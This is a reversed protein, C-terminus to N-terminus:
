KFRISNLFERFATKQASVVSAPGIMKIFWVKGDHKLMAVLMADHRDANEPGFLEAYHGEIGGITVSEVLKDIAKADMEVLGVQGAWRRINAQVDAVQGGGSAPLDIVTVEGEAEGAVVRFAAKRMMSMRGPLWGDPTEYELAANEAVSSPQEVPQDRRASGAHPNAGPQKQMIGVLEFLTATAGNTPIEKGLKKVTEPQMPGQKLQRLWRNVNNALYADWDGSLPLVSIALELPSDQDPIVLTAVRMESAPREEWAEPTQWTPPNKGTEDLKVTALFEIVGDRQRDVARASGVLKFFWAREGQPVIAALTHDLQNALEQPDLPQRPSTTRPIVYTSIEEQPECGSLLVCLSMVTLACTRRNMM